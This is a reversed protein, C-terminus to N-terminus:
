RKVPAILEVPMEVKLRIKYEFVALLTYRGGSLLDTDVAPLQLMGAQILFHHVGDLFKFLYRLSCSSDPHSFPAM